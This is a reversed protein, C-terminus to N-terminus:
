RRRRLDSEVQTLRRHINDIQNKERRVDGLKVDVLTTVRGMHELLRRESIKIASAIAEALEDITLSACTLQQAARDFM